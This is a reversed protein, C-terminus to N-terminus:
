TPCRVTILVYLQLSLLRWNCCIKKYSKVAFRKSEPIFLWRWASLICLEDKTGQWGSSPTKYILRFMRCNFWIVYFSKSLILVPSKQTILCRTTSIEKRPKRSLDWFPDQLRLIPCIPQVSVDYLLNGSCAAYYGMVACNEAVECFGSIAWLQLSSHASDKGRLLLLAPCPMHRIHCILFV